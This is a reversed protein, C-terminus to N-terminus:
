IEATIGINALLHTILPMQIVSEAWGRSEGGIAGYSVRKAGSM